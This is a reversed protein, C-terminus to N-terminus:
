GQKPESQCMDARVLSKLYATANPKSKIFDYLEMDVPSFSINIQKMKMERYRKNANKQAETVM